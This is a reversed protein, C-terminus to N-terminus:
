PVEQSPTSLWPSMRLRNASELQNWAAPGPSYAHPPPPPPSLNAPLTSSSRPRLQVPHSLWCSGARWLTFACLNWGRTWFAGGLIPVLARSSSPTPLPPALLKPRRETQSGTVPTFSLLGLCVQSKARERGGRGTCGAEFAEPCSFVHPSPHSHPALGKRM